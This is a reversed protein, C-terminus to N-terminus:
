ASPPASTRQTLILVDSPLAQARAEDITLTSGINGEGIGAALVLWIGRQEYYYVRTVQVSGFDLHADMSWVAPLRPQRAVGDGLSLIFRSAQGADSQVSFEATRRALGTLQAVLAIVLCVGGLVAVLGSVHRGGVRETAVGLGMAVLLALPPLAIGGVVDSKAPDLTLAALPVVLAGVLVLLTWRISRQAARPRGSMALLLLTTALVTALLVEGTFGLHDVLVSRPYFTLQGVLDGVGLESARVDKEVNLLHGGLYYDRVLRWNQAVFAAETASWIALALLLARRPVERPAAVVLIVVLATLYLFGITRVSIFLEGLVILGVLYRWRALRTPDGLALVALLTGWLCLATFDLRFDFVGGVIRTVSSAAVILAIFALAAGVGWARRVLTGTVGLFAALHALNLDLATLRAPGTLLFLAGAELQLLWGQVRPELLTHALGALLGRDRLAEYALYSETLYQVQDYARPYYPAVGWAAIAHL